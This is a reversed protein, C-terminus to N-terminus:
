VLHPWHLFRFGDADGVRTVMGHLITENKFFSKPIEDIERIPKFLYKSLFM